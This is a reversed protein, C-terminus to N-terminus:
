NPAELQLYLNLNGFKDYTAFSFNYHKIWPYFVFYRTAILPDIGEVEM